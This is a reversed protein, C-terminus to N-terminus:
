DRGAGDASIRSELQKSLTQVMEQWASLSQMREGADSFRARPTLLYGILLGVCAGLGTGAIISAILGGRRRRPSDKAASRQSRKKPM